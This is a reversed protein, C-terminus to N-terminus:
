LDDLSFPNGDNRVCADLFIAPLVGYSIRHVAGDAFVANFSAPHASGFCVLDAVGKYPRDQTPQFAGSRVTSTSIFGATYGGRYVDSEPGAPAQYWSPALFREGVLLTNSTGDPIDALAIPKQTNKGTLGDKGNTKDSGYCAAYDIQARLGKSGSANVNVVVPDRRGPCFYIKVPTAQVVSDAPNSWLGDQEIYPLIQYAWGWTQTKGVAPITGNMARAPDAGSGGLPLAGFVDHFSHFALGMQKLNNSCSIRAAAQRVKQVAPLLLGILVAIIGIVVLLEMLTFGSRGNRPKDQM